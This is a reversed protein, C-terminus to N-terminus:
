AASGGCFCVLFLSDGVRLSVRHALVVACVFLLCSGYYTGFVLVFAGVAFKAAASIRESGNQWFLGLVIVPYFFIALQHFFVSLSFIVVLLFPRSKRGPM